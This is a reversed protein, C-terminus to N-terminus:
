RTQVKSDRREREEAELREKEQRAREEERERRRQLPMCSLICRYQSHSATLQSTWRHRQRPFSQINYTKSLKPYNSITHKSEQLEPRSPEVDKLASLLEQQSPIKVQCKLWNYMIATACAHMNDGHRQKAMDKDWSLLQQRCLREAFGSRTYPAAIKEVAAEVWCLM